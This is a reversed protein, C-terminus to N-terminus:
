EVRDVDASGGCVQTEVILPLQRVLHQVHAEGPLVSEGLPGSDHPFLTPDADVQGLPLGIGLTPLRHGPCCPTFVLKKLADRVSTDRLRHLDALVLAARGDKEVMSRGVQSEVGVEIEEVFLEGEFRAQVHHTLERFCHLVRVATRQVVSRQGGARHVDRGLIALRTWHEPDDVPLCSGAVEVGGAVGRQSPGRGLGLVQRARGLRVECRLEVCGVGVRDIQVDEPKAGQGVQEQGPLWRSGLAGREDVPESLVPAQVRVRDGVADGIGQVRDDEGGGLRVYCLPQVRRVGEELTEVAGLTLRQGVGHGHDRVGEGHGRTLREVGVPGHFPDKPGARGRTRQQDRVDTLVLVTVREEFSPNQLDCEVLGLGDPEEVFRFRQPLHTPSHDDFQEGWWPLQATARHEVELVRPAGIRLAPGQALQQSGLPFEAVVVEFAISPVQERREVLELGLSHTVPVEFGVVEADVAAGVPRRLEHEEVEREGLCRLQVDLGTCAGIEVRVETSLAAWPVVVVRLAVRCRDGQVFHGRPPSRHPAVAHGVRAGGVIGSGGEGYVEEIRREPVFEGGEEVAGEVSVDVLPEVTESLHLLRPSPHERHGVGGAGDGRGPGHAEALGGELLRPVRVGLRGREVCREVGGSQRGSRDGHRLGEVGDGDAIQEIDGEISDGLGAPRAGQDALFEVPPVLLPRRRQTLVVTRTWASDRVLPPQGHVVERLQQGAVLAASPARLPTIDDAEGQSERSLM